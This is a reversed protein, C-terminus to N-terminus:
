PGTTTCKYQVTSHEGASSNQAQLDPLDSHAVPLVAGELRPHLVYPVAKLQEPSPLVEYSVEHLVPAHMRWHQLTCPVRM